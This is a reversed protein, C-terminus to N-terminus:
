RPPEPFLAIQGNSVSPRTETTSQLHSIFWAEVESQTSLWPGDGVRRAPLNHRRLHRGVSRRSVQVRMNHRRRWLTELFARIDELGVLAREPGDTM